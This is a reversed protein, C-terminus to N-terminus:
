EGVTKRFSQDFALAELYVRELPGADYMTQPQFWPPFQVVVVSCVALWQHLQSTARDISSPPKDERLEALLTGIRAREEINPRKVTFEGSQKVDDEDLWEMFFRKTFRIDKAKLAGDSTIDRIQIRTKPEVKEEPKEEQKAEEAM